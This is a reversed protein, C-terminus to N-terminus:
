NNSGCNAADISIAILLCILADEPESIDLVYTDGWRFLEKRIHMVPCGFGDAVDYDWCMFDGTVTWGNMDLQYRPRLLSLQRQISGVPVGGMELYFTPMFTLLKQRISAVEVGTAKDYVHIRHGLTFVEAQVYYVPVMHEDYIDYTDAWSFVRQKILLKM